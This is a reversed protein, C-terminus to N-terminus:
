GVVATRVTARSMRGSVDKEDMLCEINMPLETSNASMSQKLKECEVLLKMSARVNTKVDMKYKGKFEEVFHDAILQDFDRGGLNADHTTALITVCGKVFECASMQLAAHGLDVFVVRKPKEEPAPLERQYIGWGLAVASTENLLRLCNLGAVKCAAVMAHRQEDNYYVPVDVVCDAVKAKLTTETITKIKRLLMGTIQVISLTQKVGLHKVVVGVSGDEMAVVEYGVRKIEAQVDLDAFRRGIFPEFDSITNQYQRRHPISFALFPPAM